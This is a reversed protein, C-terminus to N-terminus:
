KIYEISISIVKGVEVEEDELGNFDIRYVVIDELDNEDLSLSQVQDFDLMKWSSDDKQYGVILCADLYDFDFSKLDKFEIDIVDTTGDHESTPIESNILAYGSKINLKKIVEAISDGIKLNGYLTPEDVYQTDNFYIEKGNWYDITFFDGKELVIEKSDIVISDVSIKNKGCGVLILFSLLLLLSKFCKM